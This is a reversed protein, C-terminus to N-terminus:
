RSCTVYADWGIETCTPAKAEHSVETHGLAEKEVYTSYDCRSCTVYADWGIETCTPAQAEHTVEDHGLAEKEVYTSYDCRSCTVYADWGIETCTPAKAEHSVEDHGLANKEVYTTYDCRSCTVYADWGIETCTPAKAEHSVEAHGLKAKEVYTTYDCRSCTVYADWGIETCTPAQAEHTVEDHGLAADLQVDCVTCIQATTCTAAAGASHGKADVTEQPKTIAGCVSCHKGETLGTETCTPAVAEDIVETHGLADVTEQAVLVEGCASCHKGETLGTETCTPAKAVDIVETHGTAPIETQAVLVENCRGCHKGETLGTNECDPAVAADIVEEHGLVPIVEQATTTEGCVTCKAGDTLGTETCTAAKGSVTETTPHTCTRTAGCTNCTKDYAGGQDYTHGTAPIETQTVTTVGCVTCQKGETLGAETCTAAKGAITEETHGLADVTTQAVTVTGCVSCHKGETLGTATCTPAVAADIVETHGKAPVEETYSDGCNGCTFTKVGTETCTPATTEVSEYSHGTTEVTDGTYSDGCVTCTYTTYGAATCTPATVVSEYNHEGTAPITENYSHQKCVRCTYTKTGDSGCTADNTNTVEYSHRATCDGWVNLGDDNIYGYKTGSLSEYQDVADATADPKLGKMPVLTVTTTELVSGDKAYNLREYIQSAAGTRSGVDIQGTGTLFNYGNDYYQYNRYAYKTDEDTYVDILDETVFLGGNAILKGDVNLQASGVNSKSFTKDTKETERRTMNVPYGGSNFGLLMTEGTATARYDYDNLRYFILSATEGITLTGTSQVDFKAGPLLKFTHNLTCEGAVQVQYASCLPIIYDATNITAPYTAGGFRAEIDLVFEGSEAKSNEDVRLVIQGSVKDYYKTVTGSKMLFFANEEALLRMSGQTETGVGQWALSFHGDLTAGKSYIVKAEITNMFFTNFPFMHYKSADKTIDNLIMPHPVGKIECLEHIHAGAKAYIVGSGKVLGYGYLVADKEVYVTGSVIMSAYAGSSGGTSCNQYGSVLLTGKVTMNGNVTFTAYKGGSGDVSPIYQGLETDYRCIATMDFPIILVEGAPITFDGDITMNGLLVVEGDADFAQQLSTYFESGDANRAIYQGNLAADSGNVDKYTYTGNDADFTVAEPVFVPNIMTDETLNYDYTPTRVLTGNVDWGLLRYNPPATVKLQMAQGQPFSLEEVNGEANVNYVVGGVTLSGGPLANGLNDQFTTSQTFTTENARISFDSITAHYSFNMSIYGGSKLANHKSYGSMYIYLYRGAALAHEVSGSTDAIQTGSQRITDYSATGSNSEYLCLVSTNGDNGGSSENSYNFSITCNERAYIRIVNSVTNAYARSYHPIGSPCYEGQATGSNSISITTQDQQGWQLTPVYQTDFDGDNGTTAAVSYYSSVTNNVNSTSFSNNSNHYYKSNISVLQEVTTSGTSNAIVYLPDQVFKATITADTQFTINSLMNGANSYRQGNIYWGELIYYEEPTATLTYKQASPKSQVNPPTITNGDVTITYSGNGEPENFTVTSSKEELKIDSIDVTTTKAASGTSTVVITVKDGNNLPKTVTEINTKPTGDVTVSGGNLNTPDLRFELIKPSGSNNTLILTGTKSEFTDSGFCGGDATKITTATCTIKGSEVSWSATGSGTIKLGDIGVDIDIDQAFVAVSLLVVILLVLWAASVGFFIRKTSKESVKKM